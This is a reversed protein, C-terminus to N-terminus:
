DGNGASEKLKEERMEELDAIQKDIDELTAEGTLWSERRRIQREIMDIVSPPAQAIWKELEAGSSGKTFPVSQGNRILNWGVIAAQLLAMRDEGQALKMQMNGTQREIKVDRNVKAQYRQRDAETMTKCTVYTAGDPFYVDYHEDVGYYEVQVNDVPAQAASPAEITDTDM